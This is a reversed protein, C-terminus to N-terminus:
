GGSLAQFVFVTQGDSVSDSLRVRDRTPHDEIFVVVHRQVAGQDDLIYRRAKPYAAFYNDLVERASGGPMEAEPCELHRQLNATFIVRAM